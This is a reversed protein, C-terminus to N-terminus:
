TVSRATPCASYRPCMLLRSEIVIAGSASDRIVNQGDRYPTPRARNGKEICAHLRQILDETLGQKRAAWEEVRLLADWYNKVEGVDRERGHFDSRRGQIVEEAEALTLRNGEIRTSFHTSRLRARRRLEAEVVPPIPTEAVVARAAEIAMLGRAVAPTITFRPSWASGNV